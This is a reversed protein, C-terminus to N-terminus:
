LANASAPRSTMFRVVEVTPVAMPSLVSRVVPTMLRRRVSGMDGVEIRTPRVIESRSAAASHLVITASVPRAM